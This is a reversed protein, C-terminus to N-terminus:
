ACTLSSAAQSRAPRGDAYPARPERRPTHRTHRDGSILIAKQTTTFIFDDALSTPAEIGVRALLESSRLWPPQQYVTLPNGHKAASSRPPPPPTTPATAAPHRASLGPM